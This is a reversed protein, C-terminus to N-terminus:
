DDEDDLMRYKPQEAKEASATKSPGYYHFMVVGLTCSLLVTITINIWGSVIM